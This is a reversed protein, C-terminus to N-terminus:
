DGGPTNAPRKPISRRAVQYRGSLIRRGGETFSRKKRRGGKKRKKHKKKEEM